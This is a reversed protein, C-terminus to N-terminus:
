GAILIQHSNSILKLLNESYFKSPNFSFDYSSEEVCERDLTDNFFYITKNGEKHAPLKELHSRLLLASEADLSAKDVVVILGDSM